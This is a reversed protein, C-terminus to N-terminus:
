VDPSSMIWKTAGILRNALFPIDFRLEGSYQDISEERRTLLDFLLTAIGHSHLVQAVYRNRPSHRSSGSGHAFLVLGDAGKPLVLIGELTAGEVEISVECKVGDWQSQQGAIM